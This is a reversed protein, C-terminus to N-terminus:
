VAAGNCNIILMVHIAPNRPNRPNCNIILMIHIAANRPNGVNIILMNSTILLSTAM